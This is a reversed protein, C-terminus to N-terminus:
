FRLISHKSIIEWSLFGIKIDMIKKVFKIVIKLSFYLFPKCMCESIFSSVSSDGNDDNDNNFLAQLFKAKCMVLIIQNIAAPVVTFTHNSIALLLFLISNKTRIEGEM